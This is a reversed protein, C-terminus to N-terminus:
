HHEEELDGNSEEATYSKFVLLGGCIALSAVLFFMLTTASSTSKDASYVASGVINEPKVVVNNPDVPETHAKKIRFTNKPTFTELKTAPNELMRLAAAVADNAKRDVIYINRISEVAKHLNSFTLRKGDFVLADDIYKDIHSKVVKDFDNSTEAVSKYESLVPISYVIGTIFDKKANYSKEIADSIKADLGALSEHDKCHESFAALQNSADTGVFAVNYFNKAEKDECTLSVQDLNFSVNSFCKPNKLAHVMKKRLDHDTTKEINAMDEKIKKILNVQGELACDSSGVFVALTLLQKLNLKM